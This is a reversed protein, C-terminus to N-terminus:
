FCRNKEFRKLKLTKQNLPKNIKNILNEIEKKATKFATVFNKDNPSITKTVFLKDNM